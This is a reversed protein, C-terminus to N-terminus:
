AKEISCTHFCLSFSILIQVIFNLLVYPVSHSTYLTFVNGFSIFLLFLKLNSFSFTFRHTFMRLYLHSM